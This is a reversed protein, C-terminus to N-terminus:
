GAVVINLLKGPVAIVKKIEKGETYRLVHEDKLALAEIQDKTASAPVTLKGRLKGNVQVVILVEDAVLAAEDVKPWAQDIVAGAHGLAQWLVHAIHPVIPSLLLVAAELAEQLVARDADSEANFRQVDNLLEMVKAIATNFVLRSGIDDSVGKFIPLACTQVGTM